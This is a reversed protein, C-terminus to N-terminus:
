ELRQRKHSEGDISKHRKLYIKDYHTLQEKQKIGREHLWVQLLISLHIPVRLTASDSAELVMAQIPERCLDMLCDLVFTQNNKYLVGVFTQWYSCHKRISKAIVRHHKTTYDTSFMNCFFELIFEDNTKMLYKVVKYKHLHSITFEFSWKRTEAITESGMTRTCNRCMRVVEHYNFVHIGHKMMLYLGNLELNFDGDLYRHGGIALGEDALRILTDRGSPSRFMKVFNDETFLPLGRKLKCEHATNGSKIKQIVADYVPRLLYSSALKTWTLSDFNFQDCFVVCNLMYDVNSNNEISYEKIHNEISDSLQNHTYYREIVDMSLFENGSVVRPTNCIAWDIHDINENTPKYRDFDFETEFLVSKLRPMKCLMLALLFSCSKGDIKHVYMREISRFRTVFALYNKAICEYNFYLAFASYDLAFDTQSCLSEHTLGVVIMRIMREPVFCDYKINNKSQIESLQNRLNNAISLVEESNLNKKKFQDRDIDSFLNKLENNQHICCQQLNYHLFSLIIGIQNVCLETPKAM